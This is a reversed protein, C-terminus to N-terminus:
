RRTCQHLHHTTTDSLTVDSVYLFDWCFDGAAAFLLVRGLGAASATRGALTLSDQKRIMKLIHAIREAAPISSSSTATDSTSITAGVAAWSFGFWPKLWCSGCCFGPSGAGCRYESFTSSTESLTVFRAARMALAMELWFLLVSIKEGTLM